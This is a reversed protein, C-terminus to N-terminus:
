EDPSHPQREPSPRMPATGGATPNPRPMPKGTVPNPYHYPEVYFSPYTLLVVTPPLDPPPLFSDPRTEPIASTEWGEKYLAYMNFPAHLKAMKWIGGQKVYQNEYTVDGWVGTGMVLATWRGRATAGDPAIDVIGQFQQHNIVQGKQPGIPGLGTVLYDLVRQQGVFVGRGGIELTGNQAFLNSIEPWMAKDVYYGYARQLKEVAARDELRGVAVGLANLDSVARKLDASAQAPAQIQPAAEIPTGESVPNKYHYAPLYVEPLSQYVESPARDPPAAASPGDLPLPADKWGGDYDALFTIYFHLKSIKWVGRENVYENEYEGESWYGNGADALEVDSRWRAKASRNDDAVDIIPQLMMYNNLQGRRLGEPGFLAIAKHIHDRGIYVGHQGFEYSASASFLNSAQTWLGKDIYYGYAAQLNEIADRSELRAVKNEQAALRAELDTLDTRAATAATAATETAPTNAAHVLALAAALRLALRPRLALRTM